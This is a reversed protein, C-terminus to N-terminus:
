SSICGAEKLTLTRLSLAHVRGSLEEALLDYVMRQRAVRSKGVFRDAVIKVIFHSEGQGDHGAHGVHRASDDEIELEVPDLAEILKRKIQKAVPGFSSLAADM